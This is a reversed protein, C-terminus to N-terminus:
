KKVLLTRKIEYKIDELELVSKINNFGECSINFDFMIQNEFVKDNIEYNTLLKEIFKIQNYNFWIQVNYGNTIEILESKIICESCSKSYARVLGGAGLKVGGFYRVVICLIFNLNNNELVNLIPVGATGSPENDDSFRKINDIIYAYCYHTADKYNKKANDLKDNIEDINNVRYLLTIFKSKNIVIEHKTEDKITLM